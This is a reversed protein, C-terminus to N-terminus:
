SMSASAKKGAMKAIDTAHEKTHGARLALRKAKDYVQSYLRNSETSKYCKSDDGPTAAKAKAKAKGKKPTKDAKAKSKKPTKHAKAMSKRVPKLAVQCQARASTLDRDDVRMSTDQFELLPESLFAFPHRESARDPSLLSEFSSFSGMRKPPTFDIPENKIPSMTPCPASDHSDGSILRKLFTEDADAMLAHVPSTTGRNPSIPIRPSGNMLSDFWGHTKDNIEAQSWIM